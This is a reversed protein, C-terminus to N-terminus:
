RYNKVSHYFHRLFRCKAVLIFTIIKDYALAYDKNQM